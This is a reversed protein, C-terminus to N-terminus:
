KLFAGPEIYIRRSREIENKARRLRKTLRIALRSVGWNFRVFSLLMVKRLRRQIRELVDELSADNSIDTAEVLVKKFELATKKERDFTETRQERDHYVKLSPVVGIKLHYYKLRNVYNDDEGYHFFLPDFGGAKEVVERRLFWAAANVFGTEIIEGVPYVKSPTYSTIFDKSSGSSALYNRFKRDPGTGNGNLHVPSLIGFGPHSTSIRKLEELSGKDVWADQNLLFFFSAGEKMGAKIGLNNAKGFGLNTGAEIVKVRPFYKKIHAVTGDSSDNDVVIVQDGAGGPLLSGLCKDLWSMANYSVVISVIKGMGVMM